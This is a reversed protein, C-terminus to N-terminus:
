SLVEQFTPPPSDDSSSLRRSLTVGKVLEMEMIMIVAVANSRKAESVILDKARTKDGPLTLWKVEYMGGPSDDMTVVVATWPVSGESELMEATSHFIHEGIAIIEKLVKM